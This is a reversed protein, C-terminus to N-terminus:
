WIEGGEKGFWRKGIYSKYKEVIWRVECRMDKEKM